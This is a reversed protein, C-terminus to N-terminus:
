LVPLVDDINNKSCIALLIGRRWLKELEQQLAVFFHGPSDPGLQIGDVGDEGVVGGWLTNDLDVVICKRSLGRAARIYRLYERSLNGLVPESWGMRATLWLRVDTAGSKATQAQIRDEDVIYVNRYGTRALDALRLNIEAFAAAQGLEERADLIGLRRTHPLVMNHLLVMASSHEVFVDLLHEVTQIGANIEARREDM